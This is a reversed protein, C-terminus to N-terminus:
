PFILLCKIALYLLSSNLHPPQNLDEKYGGIPPLSLFHQFSPCPFSDAPVRCKWSPSLQLSWLQTKWQILLALFFLSQQLISVLDQFEPLSQLLLPRHLLLPHRHPSSEQNSRPRNEMKISPSSNQATTKPSRLPAPSPTNFTLGLPLPLGLASTDSLDFIESKSSLKSTNLLWSADSPSLPPASALAEDKPSVTQSTQSASSFASTDGESVGQMSSEQFSSSIDFLGSDVMDGLAGTNETSFPPYFTQNSHGLSANETDILVDVPDGSSAAEPVSGLTTKNTSSPMTFPAATANLESNLVLPSIAASTPSRVGQSLPSSDEEPNFGKKWTNQNTEMHASSIEMREKTPSGLDVMAEAKTESATVSSPVFPEVTVSWEEPLKKRNKSKKGRAGSKGLQEEWGGEGRDRRPGIRHYSEEAPPTNEGAGQMELEGRGELHEYSGEDKQRRKKKRKQKRDSGDTDREDGGAYTTSERSPWSDPTDEPSAALLDAQDSFKVSISPAFPPETSLPGTQDQWSDDLSGASVDLPSLPAHPEPLTASHDKPVDSGARPSPYQLESVSPLKQPQLPATGVEVNMGIGAPQSFGSFTGLLGSDMMQVPSSHSALSDSHTAMSASLDSVSAQQPDPSHSQVEGELELLSGIQEESTVKCGAAKVVHMFFRCDSGMESSTRSHLESEIVCTWLLISDSKRMFCVHLDWVLGINLQLTSSLAETETQRCHLRLQSQAVLVTFRDTQNLDRAGRWGAGGRGGQQRWGEAETRSTWADQARQEEESERREIGRARRDVMPSLDKLQEAGLSQFLSGSSSRM